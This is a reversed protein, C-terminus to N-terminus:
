SVPSQFGNLPGAVNLLILSKPDFLKFHQSFNAVGAALKSNKVVFVYLVQSVDLAQNETSLLTSTVVNVLDLEMM